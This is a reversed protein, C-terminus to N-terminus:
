IKISEIPIIVGTKKPQLKQRFGVEVYKYTLKSVKFITLLYIPLIFTLLYPSDIRFVKLIIEFLIAIAAHTMYISYSLEGLQKFFNNSLWSAVKGLEFAFCIITFSYILPLLFNYSEPLYMTALLSLSLTLIELITSHKVMGSGNVVSYFEYAACGIFFGFMCRFMSFNSTIELNYSGNTVKILYLSIISIAVFAIIRYSRTVKNVYVITLCFVIYAVIEASISWSPYNWSIPTINFSQLFFLNVIFSTINNKEFVPSKFIGQSFLLFKGIELLLFIVLMLIHLPYLRYFRNKMFKIQASGVSLHAYNHYIIFGSLVFFFDVFHSGKQIILLNSIPGAAKFHCIAVIYAFLGRFSDLVTFRKNM